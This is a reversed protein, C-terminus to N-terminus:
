REQEELRGLKQAFIRAPWTKAKQPAEALWLLHGALRAPDNETPGSAHRGKQTTGSKPSFCLLDSQRKSANEGSWNIQM